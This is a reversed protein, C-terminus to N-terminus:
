SGWHLNNLITGARGVNFDTYLNHSIGAGNPTAINVIPVGNGAQNLSTNGTAVAIGEAFAPHAPQLAMM